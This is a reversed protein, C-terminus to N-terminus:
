VFNEALFIQNYNGVEILMIDFMRTEKTETLEAWTTSFETTSYHLVNFKISQTLKNRSIDSDRVNGALGFNKEGFNFRM